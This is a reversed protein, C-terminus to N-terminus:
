KRIRVTTDTDASVGVSIDGRHCMMLIQRKQMATQSAYGQDAYHDIRRNDPYRFLQATYDDAACEDGGIPGETVTVTIVM